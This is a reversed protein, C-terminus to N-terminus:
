ARLAGVRHRPMDPCATRAPDGRHDPRPPSPVCRAMAATSAPVSTGSPMRGPPVPLMRPPTRPTGSPGALRGDLGQRRARGRAMSRPSTASYVVSRAGPSAAAVCWRRWRSHCRSRHGGSPWSASRGCPGTRGSHRGTGPSGARRSADLGHGEPDRDVAPDDLQLRGDRHDGVDAVQDRADDPRPQRRQGVVALQVQEHDGRLPTTSRCGRVRRGGSGSRRGPPSASERVSRKRHWEARRSDVGGSGMWTSPSGHPMPHGRPPRGAPHAGPAPAATSVPTPGSITSRPRDATRRAIPRRVALSRLPVLTGVPWRPDVAWNGDPRSSRVVLM